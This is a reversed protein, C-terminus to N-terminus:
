AGPSPREGEVRLGAQHFYPHLVLQNVTPMIPTAELLRDLHEDMFNSVGIARVKGEELRRELARYADFSLDFRSPLSQHLILLDVQDVGLKTASKDFAHPTSGYGFDSIWM